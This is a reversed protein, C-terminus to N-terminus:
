ELAKEFIDAAKESNSEGANELEAEDDPIIFLGVYDGKAEIEANQVAEKEGPYFANAMKDEKVKELANKVDEVKDKKAKVVAITEIGTNIVGKEITAEEVMDDSLYFMEYSEDSNVPETRKMDIQDHISQVISATSVNKENSSTEGCGGLLGFAMVVSLLRAIGKKM